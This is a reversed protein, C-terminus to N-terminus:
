LIIFVQIDNKIVATICSLPVIKKLISEDIEYDDWLLYHVTKQFRQSVTYLFILFMHLVLKKM